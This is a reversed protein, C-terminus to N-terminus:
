DNLTRHHPSTLWGATPRQFPHTAAHTGSVSRCPSECSCAQEGRPQLSLACAVHSVYSIWLRESHFRQGKKSLVWNRRKEEKWYSALLATSLSSPRSHLLVWLALSAWVPTNAPGWSAESSLVLGVAMGPRGAWGLLGGLSWADGGGLFSVEPMCFILSHWSSPWRRACECKADM